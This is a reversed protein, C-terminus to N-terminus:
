GTLRSLLISGYSQGRLRWERYIRHSGINEESTWPTNEWPMWTREIRLCTRKKLCSRCSGVGSEEDWNNQTQPNIFAKQFVQPICQQVNTINTLNTFSEFVQNQEWKNHCLRWGKVQIRTKYQNQETFKRGQDFGRKGVKDRFMVPKM